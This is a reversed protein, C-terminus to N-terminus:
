KKAPKAASGPKAAPKVASAPKPPAAPAKAAPKVAASMAKVQGPLQQATKLLNQMNASPGSARPAAQPQPVHLRSKPSGPQVGM